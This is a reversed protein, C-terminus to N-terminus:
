RSGRMHRLVDRAVPLLSREIGPKGLGDPQIGSARLSNRVGRVLDPSISDGGLELQFDAWTVCHALAEDSEIPGGDVITWASSWPERYILLMALGNNELSQLPRAGPIM